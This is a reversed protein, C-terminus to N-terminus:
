QDAGAAVAPFVGPHAAVWDTWRKSPKDDGHNHIRGMLDALSLPGVQRDAFRPSQPVYRPGMTWTRRRYGWDDEGYKIFTVGNAGGDVDLLREALKAKYRENYWYAIYEENFSGLMAAEADTPRVPSERDFSTIYCWDPHSSTVAVRLATLPDDRDADTGFPWDAPEPM